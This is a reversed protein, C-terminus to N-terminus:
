DFLPLSDFVKQIPVGDAAQILSEMYLQQQHLIIGNALDIAQVNASADNHLLLLSNHKYYILGADEFLGYSGLPLITNLKAVLRLIDGHREPPVNDVLGIFAQLISIGAEEAEVMDPLFALELTFNRQNHGINDFWVLLSQYPDEDTVDVWKTHLDAAKYETELLRLLEYPDSTQLEM